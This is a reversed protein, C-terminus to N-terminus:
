APVMAKQEDVSLGMRGRWLKVLGAEADSQGKLKSSIATVDLPRVYGYWDLTSTMVLVNGAYIHGGVHSCPRVQASDGLESRLKEVLQPGCHGCRKDRQSHSCVFIQVTSLKEHNLMSYDSRPIVLETLAKIGADSLAAGRFLVPTQDSSMPGPCFIVDGEAESPEAEVVTVKVDGPYGASAGKVAKALQATCGGESFVDSAWESAPKKVCVFVHGVYESITGALPKSLMEARAFGISEEIDAVEGGCQAM